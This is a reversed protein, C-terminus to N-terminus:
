GASTELDTAKKLEGVLATLENTHRGLTEAMRSVRARARQQEIHPQVFAALAEAAEDTGVLRGWGNAGLRGGLAKELRKLLTLKEEVRWDQGAGGQERLREMEQRHQAALEDRQRRLANVRVTETNTILTVLLGTTLDPTRRTPEVLVQFRRGRAKPVMLGWGMPIEDPHAVDTNPVVLWFRSSYPWWAEAKGPDRLERLWDTRQTKVECVDIEGGGRSAWTGIHVADARRGTQGPATVETLFVAGPLAEGPKIFHDRLMQTLAETTASPIGRSARGRKAPVSLATQASATNM